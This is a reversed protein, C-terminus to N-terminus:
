TSSANGEESMPQKFNAEIEEPSMNRLKFLLEHVEAVPASEIKNRTLYELVRVLLPSPSVVTCDNPSVPTEAIYYRGSQTLYVKM